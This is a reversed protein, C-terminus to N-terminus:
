MLLSTDKALISVVARRMQRPSLARLSGIAFNDLELVGSPLNWQTELDRLIGTAILETHEPGPPPFFVPRLRNLLPDPLNEISNSTAVHLCHSLDCEAMLYIDHYRRANGPELLDLLAEQPDGGHGSYGKAKDIEDLIFMPNPVRTQLMFELFRSPRNSSWGRTVGKLQKVDSMGALNIVTNPTGLEQALRQAFRTKGTGTPGVLLLPSMGLRTAGHRKRAILEGVVAMVVDPAWPFEALLRDRLGYLQNMSPLERFPLPERLVAYQKLYENDGRDTSSPISSSIVILSDRGSKGEPTSTLNTTTETEPGDIASRLRNFVIHQQHFLDSELEGCDSKYLAYARILRNWAPKLWSLADLRESAAGQSDRGSLGRGSPLLALYNVICALGAIFDQEVWGDFGRQMHGPLAKAAAAWANGIEKSVVLSTLGSASRQATPERVRPLSDIRPDFEIHVGITGALAIAYEYAGRINNLQRAVRFWDMGQGVGESLSFHTNAYRERLYYGLQLSAHSRRLRREKADSVILLWQKVKALRYSLFGKTTFTLCLFDDGFFNDFPLSWASHSEDCDGLSRARIEDQVDCIM